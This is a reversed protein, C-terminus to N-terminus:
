RAEFHYELGEAIRERRPRNMLRFYRRTREIRQVLNEPHTNVWERTPEDKPDTPEVPAQSTVPFGNPRRLIIKPM